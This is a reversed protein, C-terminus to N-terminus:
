VTRANATPMSVTKGSKAPEVAEANMKRSIDIGGKFYAGEEISIRQTIVDGTLSGESRIDLRETAVVSGHLKGMVVVERASLNAMVVGNKGVTVRTAGGSLTISGEVRGDIFLSESGSVDGKIILSRGISCQEMSNVTAYKPASIPSPEASQTNNLAESSKSASEPTAAQKLANSM